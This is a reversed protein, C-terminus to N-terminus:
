FDCKFIRRIESSIAQFVQRLDLESAVRNSLDLLLLLRDREHQVGMLDSEARKRGEIDTLLLNWRIIRGDADRAPLGHVHFWRYTGNAGCLRHEADYPNGTALSHRWAALTHSRDEPHVTDFILWSNSAEDLTKGFYALLQQNVFETAGAATATLILGPMGDVIQRVAQENSM